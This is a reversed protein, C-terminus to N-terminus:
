GPPHGAARATGDCERPQDRRGRVHGRQGGRRRTVDRGTPRSSSKRGSAVSGTRGPFINSFFREVGSNLQVAQSVFLLMRKCERNEDTEQGFFSTTMFIMGFLIGFSKMINKKRIWSEEKETIAYVHNINKSCIWIKGRIDRLPSEKIVPLM